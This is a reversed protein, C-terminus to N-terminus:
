KGEEIEAENFVCIDGINCDLAKCVRQLSEMAVFEGKGMKALINSTIGAKTILDTKKWEKDILLKWLKKYDGPAM